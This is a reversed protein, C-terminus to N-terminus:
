FDRFIECAHSSRSRAQRSDRKRNEEKRLTEENHANSISLTAAIALANGM